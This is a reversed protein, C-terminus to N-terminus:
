KAVTTTRSIIAQAMEKTLGQAHPPEMMSMHEGTVAYTRIGSRSMSKWARPDIPEHGFASSETVYFIDITSAVPGPYEYRQLAQGNRVMVDVYRRATEATVAEPMDGREKARQLVLAGKEESSLGNLRARDIDYLVALYDWVDEEIALESQLIRAENYRTDLLGIFAVEDGSQELRWAMDYAITGGLSWGALLYPGQPAVNRIEEIYRRSMEELTSLPAEDSEYGVSQIGYIAHGDEVLGEILGQYVLVGGGQPHILFLPPKDGAGRKLCVLCESAITNGNHIYAALKEVTPERLLAALTIEAGFRKRIGSLLALAKLSHGGLQFFDDTMSIPRKGLVEEWLRLMELEVRSRPLIIVSNSTRNAEQQKALIALEKRDMKGNANLPLEKLITVSTPLMYDPLVASLLELIGAENLSSDVVPVAFASISLDAGEGVVVAAANLVGPLGALVQEIEGLEIRYGRIKVQHDVRGVFELLGDPSMRVSDGTRYLRGELSPDFPNPIFQQLTLSENHLYGRAVGAGGIYLEGIVGHPVPELQKDLVYAQIGTLPEGLPVTGEIPRGRKADVRYSTVGITTETPGYHNMVICGPALAMAQEVVEWHLAEGGLILCRRPLINAQQAALLAKLHSPVIKLCDIRNGQFYQALLEADAAREKSIMHVEGGGCLAPFIATNGLDAAITTVTAYSAGAGLPLRDAIAVTYNALSRHEIVVGKPRGTSGSTYIVYAAHHPAPGDPLNDADHRLLLEADRDVNLQPLNLGELLSYTAEHTIVLSLGSDRVMDDLRELPFSPDMPVYAGGAKMIALLGVLLDVSREMCLGVLVEPGVGRSRLERALRNASVNLQEYSLREAEYVVATFDPYREVMKEFVRHILKAEGVPDSAGMTLSSAARRVIAQKDTENLLPLEGIPLEPSATMADILTHFASLWGQITAEKFLRTCYNLNLTMGHEREVFTFNLDFKTTRTDVERLEWAMGESPRMYEQQRMMQFLVNVLPPRSRDRVPNLKDVILDFPYEHNAYVDLALAKCDALWESFPQTTNLRFRLPLTNVFFGILPELELRSRGADPTGILLDTQGTLRCLFTSVAAMMFMFPTTDTDKTLREIREVTEKGLELSAIHGDYQQTEPRPYDAPLELVPLTGQLLDLWFAEQKALAGGELRENQWSAYEKYQIDLTPLVADTRNAWASHLAAIERVFVEWSWADGIIHHMNLWIWHRDETKRIVCVRFLPGEHLDFPVTLEREAAMEMHQEQAAKDLERIDEYAIPIDNGDNIVQLPIGDELRFTTRLSEHRRVVTRIIAQFVDLQFEGALEIAVPMNYSANAPESLQVVYLRRQAHSTPYHGAPPLPMIPEDPVGEGKGREVREALEAITGLEFMEKLTLTVGFVKSLRSRVQTMTLSHGGLEIFTDRIGISRVNLVEQWITRIALQVATAPEDDASVGRKEPEPLRKRDVKGNANLPLEALRVFHDPMMYFPLKHLLLRELEETEAEGVFYALIRKQGNSDERVLSVCHRVGEHQRLTEDIEGLEIRHGRVKVQHDGRGLFQLQGADTFLGIDGTRYMRPGTGDRFPNRVFAAQTRVEDNLYGRGVCIGTVCIEGPVGQPVPRLSDDLLYLKSSAIPVGLHVYPYQTSVDNDVIAHLVDDSTETAGYTNIVAVHPYAESWRQWQSVALGEGTSLMAQLVPLRGESPALVTRTELLMEIMSPVLELITIRDQELAHLLNLPDKAIDDPYIVVTAGTMLPALFQWVSIDFCHSANQAVISDANMGSVEIKAAIHNMMGAHEIMAGKPVGTSGSTYFVNALDHWENVPEPNVAAFANFNFSNRMGAATGTIEEENMLVLMAESQEGLVHLRARGAEQPATILAKMGSDQVITRVRDDPYAPDLPVYAGGAKLIGVIAILMDLSRNMWVGALMDRGFHHSRLGNALQNARANLEGYTLQESGCIAAIQGPREGAHEEFQLHSLRHLKQGQLNSRNFQIVLKEYEDLPMIPLRNIPVDLGEAIGGLVTEYHAFMRMAAERTFKNEDLIVSLTWTSSSRSWRWQIPVSAAYQLEILEHKLLPTTGEVEPCLRPNDRVEVSSYFLPEEGAHVGALAAFEEAPLYAYQRMADLKDNLEQIASAATASRSISLRVPITNTYNGMLGEMGAPPIGRGDVSLGFSVEGERGYVRLLEAWAFVFLTEASVGNRQAITDLQVSLEPPLATKWETTRQALGKDIRNEQLMGFPISPATFSSFAEAWIPKAARWGQDALWAGYQAQAQAQAQASAEDQVAGMSPLEQDQLLAAYLAIWQEHLTLRSTEDLIAEHYFWCLEAENDQLLRLEAAVLPGEQVDLNCTFGDGNFKSAKMIASDDTGTVTLPNPLEKLVVAAESGRVTRFVTRLVTNRAILEDWAKSLLGSDIRGYLSYTCRVIGAAAAGEAKLGAARKLISQQVFTTEVICAVNEKTVYTM